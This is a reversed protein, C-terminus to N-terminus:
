VSVVAEAAKAQAAAIPMDMSDGVYRHSSKKQSLHIFRENLQERPNPFHASDSLVDSFTGVDIAPSPTVRRV